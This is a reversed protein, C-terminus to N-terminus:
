ANEEPQYVLSVVGTKFTNNKVLKLNIRDTIEKFLPLGSGLVVPFVNIRYEDILGLQMFAQAISTSNMILMNRGPQQKLKSIEEAINEKILRSNKWEAKELTRSFVIKPIDNLWKSFDIDNKRSAPNTAVAPWFSFFGEYNARGLLVTDVTSYLDYEYQYAEDTIVHPVLWDMEGNPGATFGDLSVHIQLIVKRM